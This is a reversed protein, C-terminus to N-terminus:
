PRPRAKCEALPILRPCLKAVFADGVLATEPAGPLSVSLSGTWVAKQGPEARFSASGHFPAPPAIEAYTPREGPGLVLADRGFVTTSRTIAMPGVREATSAVIRARPHPGDPASALLQVSGNAIPARAAVQTERLADPIPFPLRIRDDGFGCFGNPLRLVEGRIATADVATYGGEGVFSFSGRFVGAETTWACGKEPRDVTRKRRNFDFALTGLTGFVAHMGPRADAPVEYNASSGGVGVGLAASPPLSGGHTQVVEVSYGNSGSLEFSKFVLGGGTAALAPSAGIASPGAPM